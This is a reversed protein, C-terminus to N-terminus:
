WSRFLLCSMKIQCLSDTWMQKSKSRELWTLVCLLTSFHLQINWTSEATLVSCLLMCHSSTLNLLFFNPFFNFFFLWCQTNTYNCLPWPFRVFLLPVSQINICMTIIVMQLAIFEKQLQNVPFIRCYASLLLTLLTLSQFPVQYERNFHSCYRQSCSLVTACYSKYDWLQICPQCTCATSVLYHRLM